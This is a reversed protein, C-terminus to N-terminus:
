RRLRPARPTRGLPNPRRGGGPPPPAVPPCPRRFPWKSPPSPSFRPAPRWPSRDAKEPSEAKVLAEESVKVFAGAGFPSPLAPPSASARRPRPSPAAPPRAAHGGREALRERAGSGAKRPEAMLAEVSFPLLAARPKEGEEEEEEEARMAGGPAAKSRAQAPPEEARAACQVSTMAPGPAM